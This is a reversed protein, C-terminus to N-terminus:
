SGRPPDRAAHADPATHSPLAARRPDDVLERLLGPPGEADRPGQGATPAPSRPPGPVGRRPGGARGRADSLAGRFSDDQPNGVVAGDRRLGPRMRCAPP